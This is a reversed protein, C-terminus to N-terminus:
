VGVAGDDSTEGQSFTKPVAPYRDTGYTENLMVHGSIEGTELRVWTEAEKKGLDKEYIVIQRAGRTWKGYGGYGTHRGFCLFIGNGTSPTTDPLGDTASWKACWDVGHDHGSFVAILGETAVLSKMLPIDHGGYHCNQGNADCDFGQHGIAEDNIGPETNPDVLVKQQFAWSAHTPIHVFAMSPIVRNFQERFAAQEANYWNVVDQDVWEDMPVDKGDPQTKGFERGGRSDFFWLLMVLTPNGGGTSSYVPLYYNSTGIKSENGQLMSSTLALKDGLDKERKLIAATSSTRSHDHNGYTSAWPRGRQTLPGVIQDIYHTGNDSSVNEGTVLDGNLVVLDSSEQDLMKNIVEVTKRDQEPGWLTDEAEGFHLDNFVSIKFKGDLSFKLGEFESGQFPELIPAAGAATTLLWLLHERKMIATLVLGVLFSFVVLSRRRTSLTLFSSWAFAFVSFFSSCRSLSLSDPRFPRSGYNAM